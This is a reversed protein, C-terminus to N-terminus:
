RSIKDFNFKMVAEYSHESVNATRTKVFITFQINGTSEKTSYVGEQDNTDIDAIINIPEISTIPIVFEETEIEFYLDGDKEKKPEFVLDLPYEGLEELIENAMEDEFLGKILDTIPFNKFKMTKEQDVVLAIDGMQPTEEENNADRRPQAISVDGKYTGTMNMSVHIDEDIKDSSSSCATFGLTLTMFALALLSKYNKVLNKM